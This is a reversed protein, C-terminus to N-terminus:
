ALLRPVSNNEKLADIFEAPIRGALSTHPRVENYDQRWSEIHFRAEALTEFWQPSLGEDRFHRHCERRLPVTPLAALLPRWRRDTPTEAGFFRWRGPTM